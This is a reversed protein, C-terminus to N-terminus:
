TYVPPPYLPLGTSNAKRFSIEYAGEGYFAVCLWVGSDGITWVFRIVGSGYCWEASKGMLEVVYEMTMGEYVHLKPIRFIEDVFLEGTAFDGVFRICIDTEETTIWRYTFDYPTDFIYKVDDFSTGVKVEVDDDKAYCFKTAVLESDFWVYLDEELETDWKYAKTTTLGFDEGIAGLSENIEALTMGVEIKGINKVTQSLKLTGGEDEFKFLGFSDTSTQWLYINQWRSVRTGETGYIERLREYSDGLKVSIDKDIFFNTVFRGDFQVYMFKDALATPWRYLGHVDNVATGETLFFEMVQEQNMGVALKRDAALEYRVLKDDADFWAFLNKIDTAKWSYINFAANYIKGTAGFLSNVEDRTMGLTPALDDRREFRTVAAAREHTERSFWVYLDKEEGTDWIRVNSLIGSESGGDGIIEAVEYYSMGVKIQEDVTPERPPENPSAEGCGVLLVTCLLMALIFLVIKKM